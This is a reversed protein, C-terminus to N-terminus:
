AHTPGTVVANTNRCNVNHSPRTKVINYHAKIIGLTVNRRDACKEIQVM